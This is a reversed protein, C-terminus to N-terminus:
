LQLCVLSLQLIYYINFNSIYQTYILSEPTGFNIHVYLVRGLLTVLSMQRALVWAGSLTGTGAFLGRTRPRATDLQLLLTTVGWRVYDYSLHLEKNDGTFTFRGTAFKGDVFQKFKYRRRLFQRNNEWNLKNLIITM